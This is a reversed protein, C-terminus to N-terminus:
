QFLFFIDAPAYGLLNSHFSSNVEEVMQAPGGQFLPKSHLDGLIRKSRVSGPGFM